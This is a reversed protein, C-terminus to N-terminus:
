RSILLKKVIVKSTAHDVFKLIYPGPALNSITFYTDNLADWQKIVRGSIDIVSISHIINLEDLLIHAEGNTSPNPYIIISAHQGIGKVAKIASYTSRRDIDIQKLRYETIVNSSNVDNYNYKLTVESNGGAAQTPVFAITEFNDESTKRQVEFGTNDQESSTQWDLSVMSGNRLATFSLFKVPLPICNNEIFQITNNPLGVTTVDVWLGNDSYPKQGSWPLYSQMGSQYTGNGPITVPGVPTSTIKLDHTFPEFLGDGEDIFVNYSISVPNASLNSIQVSYQRPVPCYLLGAIRPNGVVISVNSSVCHVNKGNSAQSAWIDGTIGSGNCDPIMLQINRIVMREVSVNIPEKLVSLGTTLIPVSTEPHYATGIVPITTGNNDIVITALANVLDPGTPYDPPNTYATGNTLLDPYQDTSWLHLYAFKNGDNVEQNWSFDFIVRCGGAVPVASKLEIALNSITCQASLRSYFSNVFLIFGTVLLLKKM